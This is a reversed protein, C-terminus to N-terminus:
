PSDACDGASLIVIATDGCDISIAIFGPCAVVFMKLSVLSLSCGIITFGVGLFKMGLPFSPAISIASSSVGYESALQIRTVGEPSVVTSGPCVASKSTTMETGSFASG